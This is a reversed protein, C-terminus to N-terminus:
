KKNSSEQIPYPDLSELINSLTTLSRYNRTSKKLNHKLFGHKTEDFRTDRTTTTENGNNQNERRFEDVKNNIGRMSMGYIM